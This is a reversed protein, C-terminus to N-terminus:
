GFVNGQVRWLTQRLIRMGLGKSPSYTIKYFRFDSADVQDMICSCIAFSKILSYLHRLDHSGKSKQM